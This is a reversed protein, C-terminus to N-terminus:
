EFRGPILTGNEMHAPIYVGKARPALVELLLLGSLALGVGVITLWSIRVGTWHEIQLPYRARLLLYIAFLGFPALFLLLGEFALRELM